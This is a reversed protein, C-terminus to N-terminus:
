RMFPVIKKKPPPPTTSSCLIHTKIKEVVKTQFMEWELFFQALYSWLYKKNKMYLVRYEQWVEIFSSNERCIKSFYAFVFNWSFGDLPASDNWTSPRVCSPVLLRKKCNQSRAQFIFYNSATSCSTYHDHKYGGSVHAESSALTFPNIFTQHSNQSVVSSKVKRTSLVHV